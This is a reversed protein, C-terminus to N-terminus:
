NDLADLIERDEEIIADIRERYADLEDDDPAREQGPDSESM